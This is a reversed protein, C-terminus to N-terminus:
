PFLGYSGIRGPRERAYGEAPVRGDHVPVDRPKEATEQGEPLIGAVGAGSVAELSDRVPQERFTMRGVEVLGHHLEASEDAARAPGPARLAGQGLVALGKSPVLREVQRQPLRLRLRRKPDGENQRDKVPSPQEDPPPGRFPEEAAEPLERANRGLDPAQPLVPAPGGAQSLEPFAKAPDGQELPNRALADKRHPVRVSM